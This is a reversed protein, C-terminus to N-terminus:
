TKESYKISNSQLKGIWYAQSKMLDVKWEYKVVENKENIVPSLQPPISVRASNLCKVQSTRVSNLNKM